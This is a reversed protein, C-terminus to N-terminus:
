YLYHFIEMSKILGRKGTKYINKFRGIMKEMSVDENKKRKVTQYKSGIKEYCQNYLHM